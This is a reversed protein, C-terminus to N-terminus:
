AEPDILDGQAAFEPLLKLLDSVLPRTIARGRALGERDLLAVAQQAAEFSRELRLSLYDIVLEDVRIQRDCFLKVLIARLFAEDPAEIAVEPARRLRSLLDPTALQLQDPKKRATMMLWAGSEGALNLLHFMETERPPAEDIDELLLAPSSVLEPLLDLRLDRAFFARADSRHAWIAGLHSKGAGRPGTLMLTRHPWGPWLRVMALARANSPAELFDEEGMGPRHPLDLPLQGTM